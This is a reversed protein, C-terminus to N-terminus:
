SSQGPWGAQISGASHSPDRARSRAERQVQDGVLRVRPQVRLVVVAAVALVRLDAAALRDPQMGVVGARAADGVAVDHADEVIAAAAEGARHEVGFRRRETTCSEVPAHHSGTAGPSGLASSRWPLGFTSVSSLPVERRACPGIACVASTSSSRKSPGSGATSANMAARASRRAPRSPRARTRCRRGSRRGARRACSRRRAAADARGRRRARQRHELRQAVRDGPRRQALDHAPAARDRDADAVARARLRALDDDRRQELLELPEHPELVDDHEDRGPRVAAVALVLQARHEAVLHERRHADDVVIRAVGDDSVQIPRKPASTGTHSFLSHTSASTRMVVPKTSGCKKAPERAPRLEDRRPEGAELRRQREVVGRADPVGVRAPAHRVAIRHVVVHARDGRRGARIEREVDHEVALLADRLGEAALQERHM